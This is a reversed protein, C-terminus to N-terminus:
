VEVVEDSTFTIADLGNEVVVWTNEVGVAGRGPFVMKPEVAVVNGVELVHKSGRAIHPLEDIELGVGHGIFPVQQPAAGMFVGALGAETARRVALEYLDKCPVGPRAHEVVDQQISLCVEYADRFERPLPGVCFVRTQDCLYGHYGGSLDIVIPEGRRIVRWGAGQAVAPTLGRGALPTELHSGVAGDPGSLLHGFYLEQNFGRFRVFGHHGVRRAVSELHSALEIERMGERLARAAAQYVIDAQRAAERMLEVEFASKVARIARISESCDVLRAEPFLQEYRRFLNVPLVDLEFGLVCSGPIGFKALAVPLESLREMPLVNDLTSEKRAREYNKRVLYVPEGTAPVLLHGQQISGTFYYLDVNQVVIACNVGSDELSHQFRRIRQDLEQRPVTFGNALEPEAECGSM